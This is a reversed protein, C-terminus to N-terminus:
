VFPFPRCSSPQCGRQSRSRVGNESFWKDFEERGYPKGKGDMKAELGERAIKIHEIGNNWTTLLHYPNYGL